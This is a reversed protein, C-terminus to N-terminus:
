ISPPVLYRSLFIFATPLVHLEMTAPFYELNIELFAAQHVFVNFSLIQKLYVKGVCISSSIDSFNGFSICPIRAQQLGIGGKTLCFKTNNCWITRLALSWGNIVLTLQYCSLCFETVSFMKSSFPKNQCTQSKMTFLLEIANQQIFLISKKLRM